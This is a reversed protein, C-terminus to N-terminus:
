FIFGLQGNINEVLTVNPKEETTTNKEDKNFIENLKKSSTKETEGTNTLVGARELLNEVVLRAASGLAFPVGNGVQQQKESSNGSFVFNKDFGSLASAESVYLTRNEYPHTIVPKRYNVLTCSPEDPHLRYYVNAQTAGKESAHEKEWEKILKKDGNCEESFAKLKEEYLVTKLMGPNMYEKPISRWNKGQPIFSMKKQTDEGSSTIDTSTLNAWSSDVKSLADKVTGGIVKKIVSFDPKGIKSGIIFARKRTSYGGCENDQLVKAEIEYEPLSEVVMNYFGKDKATLIQPVNEIVFVPFQKEKIFKVTRDLLGIDKHKDLRSTRNANSFPKCPVGALFLYGGPLKNFDLELVNGEIIHDGINQKYSKCAAKDMEVASIVEFKYKNKRKKNNDTSSPTTNYNLHNETSTFAYDLMGAGAFWSVISIVNNLNENDTSCYIDGGVVKKLEKTTCIFKQISKYKKLNKNLAESSSNQNSKEEAFAEITIIDKKINIDLIKVDKLTNKIESKRIDILPKYGNASKKRSITWTNGKIKETAPVVFIKKSSVNVIARYQSGITFKGQENFSFTIGRNSINGDKDKRRFIRKIAKKM